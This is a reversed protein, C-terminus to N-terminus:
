ICHMVGRYHKDLHINEKNNVCFVAYSSSMHSSNLRTSKRDRSLSVSRGAAKTSRRHYALYDGTRPDQALSINDSSPLIPQDNPSRFLTTYPHLTARLLQHM